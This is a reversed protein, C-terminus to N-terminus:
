KLEKTVIITDTSSIRYPKSKSYATDWLRCKTIPIKLAEHYSDFTTMSRNNIDVICTWHSYFDPSEELEYEYGMIVVSPTPIDKLAKFYSKIDGAKRSWYPTSVTCDLCLKKITHKLIKNVRNRYIGYLVGHADNWEKIYYDFVVKFVYNPNLEPFLFLVTNACTYFGCMSDQSGQKAPLKNNETAKYM